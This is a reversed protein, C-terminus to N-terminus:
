VRIGRGGAECPQPDRGHTGFCGVNRHDPLGAMLKAIEFGFCGITVEGFSWITRSLRSTGNRFLKIRLM